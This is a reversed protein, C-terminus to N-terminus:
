QSQGASVWTREEVWGSHPIPPPSAKTQSFICNKDDGTGLCSVSCAVGHFAISFLEGNNVWTVSRQELCSNKRDSNEVIFALVKFMTEM